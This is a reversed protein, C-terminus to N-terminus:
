SNSVFNMLEKEAKKSKKIKTKTEKRLNAEREARKGTNERGDGTLEKRYWGEMTKPQKKM